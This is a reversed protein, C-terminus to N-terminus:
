YTWPALMPGMNAGHVKSDRVSAQVANRNWFSIKSLIHKEWISFTQKTADGNHPMYNGYAVSIVLCDEQRHGSSMDPRLWELSPDAKRVPRIAASLQSYFTWSIDTRSQGVDPFSEIYESNFILKM